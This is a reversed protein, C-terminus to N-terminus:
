LTSAPSREFAHAVAEAPGSNYRRFDSASSARRLHQHPSLAIREALLVLTRRSDSASVNRVSLRVIALKANPHELLTSVLADTTAASAVPFGRDLRGWYLIHDVRENRRATLFAASVDAGGLKIVINEVKTIQFGNAAYCSFPNHLHTDLCDVRGSFIMVIPAGRLDTERVVLSQVDAHKTLDDPWVIDDALLGPRADRKFDDACLGTSEASKCVLMSPVMLGIKLLQRRAHLSNGSLPLRRQDVQNTASSDASRSSMFCHRKSIEWMPRTIM